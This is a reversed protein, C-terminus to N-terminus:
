GADEGALGQMLGIIACACKFAGRYKGPFVRSSLFSQFILRDRDNNFRGQYVKKGDLMLEIIKSIADKRRKIIEEGPLAAGRAGIEYVFLDKLIPNISALGEQNLMRLEDWVEDFTKAKPKPESEIRSTSAELAELEEELTKIQAELPAVKGKQQSIINRLGSIEDGKLQLRRTLEKIREQQKALLAQYDPLIQGQHLEIIELIMRAVKNKPNRETIQELQKKALLYEKSLISELARTIIPVDRTEKKIHVTDIEVVRRKPFSANEAQMNREQEALATERRSLGDAVERLEAEYNNLGQERAILEGSLIELGKREEELEQKLSAIEAELESSTETEEAAPSPTAVAAEEKVAAAAAKLALNHAKELDEVTGRRSLFKARLEVVEFGQLVPMEEIEELFKLGEEVLRLNDFTFLRIKITKGYYPSSPHIEKLLDLVESDRRLKHFCVAKIYLLEAKEEQILPLEEAKQIHLLAESINRMELFTRAAIVHAKGEDEKIDLLSGIRNLREENDEAKGIWSYVFDRVNRGITKVQQNTDDEEVASLIVEYAQLYKQQNALDQAKKILKRVDKKKVKVTEVKEPKIPPSIPIPAPKPAKPAAAPISEKPGIMSKILTFKTGLKKTAQELDTLILDKIDQAKVGWRDEAKLFHEEAELLNEDSKGRALAFVGAYFHVFPLNKEMQKKALPLIKATENEVEKAIALYRTFVKEFIALGERGIKGSDLKNDIFNYKRYYAILNLYVPNYEQAFLNNQPYQHLLAFGERQNIHAKGKPKNFYGVAEGVTTVADKVVIAM